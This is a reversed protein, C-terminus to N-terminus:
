AEILAVRETLSQLQALIDQLQANIDSM